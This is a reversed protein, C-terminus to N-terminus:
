VKIKEEFLERNKTVIDMFKYYTDRAYDACLSSMITKGSHFVLFTNYRKKSLKKDQEKQNLM